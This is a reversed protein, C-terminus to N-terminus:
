RGGSRWSRRPRTATHRRTTSRPSRTRSGPQRARVDADPRRRRGRHDPGALPAPLRSARDHGRHDRARRHRRDRQPIARCTRSCRTTRGNNFPPQRGGRQRGGADSRVSRPPTSCNRWEGSGNWSYPNPNGCDSFPVHQAVPHGRRRLLPVRREAPDGRLLPRLLVVAEVAWRQVPGARRRRAPQRQDRGPVAQRPLRVDEAAGPARRRQGDPQAAGAPQLEGPLLVRQGLELREGQPQGPLPATCCTPPRSARAAPLASTRRSSARSCRSSRSATSDGGQPYLQPIGRAGLPGTYWREQNFTVYEPHWGFALDHHGGAEFLHTSQSRGDLPRRQVQPDPRFRRHPLRRRPLAPLTRDACLRARTRPGVSQRWFLRAPQARQARREPSRDYLYESHFGARADIRWHNDYLKSTWHATFDSNSKTLKEQAWSPNSIFEVNNFSRM